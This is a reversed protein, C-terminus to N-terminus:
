FATVVGTTFRAREAEFDWAVEGMFRLNRAKFYHAGLALTEYKDLYGVGRNQEGLRLRFVQRDAEIRNYLVTFHWDGMAGRPSIFLEGLYSDVETETSPDPASADCRFDLPVCRDLFFPNEDRRNLYQANLTVRGGLPLTADGGWIELTSELDDAAEKGGYFFGGLRVVGLDQSVRVGVNKGADDDYSKDANAEELGHGNVVQLVVDGNTWPSFSAMIGREYTMDARVDGVRVRYPQYDEFSLRLERKMMPDSVQFQGAMVDIGSGAVDNFQLYADELGAVEGRESMYFYMYYSVSETVQGGTLLKIGWPTKIDAGAALDDTETLASMYADVRIALPINNQLRLLPDGVFMTDRPAEGRVMQFGNGAFEEGFANLRPFPAHCLACTVRYKRAFAPIADAQSPLSVALALALLATRIFIGRHVHM